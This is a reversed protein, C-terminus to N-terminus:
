WSEKLEGISAIMVKRDKDPKEKRLHFMVKRAVPIAKWKAVEDSAIEDLVSV